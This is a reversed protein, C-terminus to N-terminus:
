TLVFFCHQFVFWRRQQGNRYGHRHTPAICLANGLVAHGPSYWFGRSAAMPCSSTGYQELLRWPLLCVFLLIFFVGVKSAAKIAMAICRYMVAHMEQHLLDTTGMSIVKQLLGRPGLSSISCLLFLFLLTGVRVPSSHSDLSPLLYYYSSVLFSIILKLSSTFTIQLRRALLMCVTYSEVCDWTDLHVNPTPVHGIGSLLWIM